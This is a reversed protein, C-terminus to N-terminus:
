SFPWSGPIGGILTGLHEAEPRSLTVLGHLIYYYYRINDVFQVAEHGRCRGHKVKSYHEEKMLLPYIQKLELWTKGTGGYQKSLAIADWLHGMGQNYGALTFFWRNWPDLNESELKDWIMRLYESGARISEDSDLRDKLKFHKAAARTFQLLGRAGTPSVAKPNFRSEQYILSVLLLPDINKKSTELLIKERFEPMKEAIVKSFTELEFYPTETPFFGFYREALEEMVGSTQEERWFTSLAQALEQRETRWVWRHPIKVPLTRAPQLNLFFPHWARFHEDGVVTYPEDSDSKREELLMERPVGNHSALRITPAVGEAWAKHLSETPAIARPEGEPRAKRDRTHRARVVVPSVHGYAPGVALVADYSALQELQLGVAMDAEGNRLMRLADDPTPASVFNVRYGSQESFAQLLDREYGQGFPSLKTTVRETAPAVVKVLMSPPKKEMLILAPTPLLVLAWVLLVFCGVAYIKKRPNLLISM